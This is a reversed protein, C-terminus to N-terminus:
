SALYRRIFRRTLRNQVGSADASNAELQALMASGSQAMDPLACLLDDAINRLLASESQAKPITTSIPHPMCGSFQPGSPTISASAPSIRIAPTTESCAAALHFVCDITEGLATTMADVSDQLSPVFRDVISPERAYLQWLRFGEAGDESLVICRRSSIHRMSAVHMRAWAVLALRGDTINEFRAEAHSHLSWKGGDTAFWDGSRDRKLLDQTLGAEHLYLRGDVPPWILGSAVDGNPLSPTGSKRRISTVPTDSLDSPRLISELAAVALPKSQVESLRTHKLGSETALDLAGRESATLDSLLDEPSDIEPTATQLQNLRMLERVRDLALRVAFVFAERIGLGETAVSEVIAIRSDSTGLLERLESVPVADAHDRKNAQMVVGVPPEGARELVMRLGNLYKQAIDIESRTSDGVFVVVDAAELLHRRRSALSAQGPVSVIQCRIRRGEFLGGTYDLWDFFVTRGNVEEPVVVTGGLGNALRQVSTTKGAMPPGDYVIRIVLSDSAPDILAM